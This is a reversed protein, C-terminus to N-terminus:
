TDPQVAWQKIKRALIGVMPPYKKDEETKYPALTQQYDKAFDVPGIRIQKSQGVSAGTQPDVFSVTAFMVPPASTLISIAKAPVEYRDVVVNLDADFQGDEAIRASNSTSNVELDTAIKISEFLEQKDFSDGFLGRMKPGGTVNISAIRLSAQQDLSLPSPGLNQACGTVLFGLLLFLSFRIAQPM